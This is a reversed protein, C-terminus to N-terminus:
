GTRIIFMLTELYLWMLLHTITLVEEINSSISYFITCLSSSRLPSFLLLVCLSTFGTLFMVLFGCLKRSIHGTCLSIEGECWSCYWVYSYYFGKLSFYSLGESHFQWPCSLWGFKDWMSCFHWSHKIWPFIWMWCFEFLPRSYKHICFSSSFHSYLFSFSLYFWKNKIVLLTKRIIIRRIFVINIITIINIIRRKNIITM